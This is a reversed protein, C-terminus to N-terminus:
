TTPATLFTDLLERAALAPTLEGALVREELDPAAARVGPHARLASELGDRVLQRTWRVQQTRRKEALAGSARM